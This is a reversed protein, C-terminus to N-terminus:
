TREASAELFDVLLRVGIGTAHKPHYRRAENLFATSAIDLHAWPLGEVFEQLFIAAVISGASRSGWNKIDANDSKLNDRYEKYLPLQWVREGSREGAAFLADALPQNNACLVSAEPGISIETAGTLTAIDILRTPKLHRIAYTIADALILRGEADSNTIEVTKGAYSRYIDGPKYSGPGIANETLPVVASINVPLKLAAVASLTALVAAGGAMDCRMSEMSGTPKLNLGGTDYTVGKGILATREQSSPNGNYEVVMLVPENASGRSVALLLGMQLEILEHRDLLRVKLSDFKDMLQLAAKAFQQPTIDDANGNVLDRAFHVAECIAAHKLAIPLMSPPMGVLFAQEITTQREATQQKFTAFTYNALMAGEVVGIVVDSPTLSAVTPLLFAVSKIKKGKSKAIASAYARRLSEVTLTEQPGLGLLGLRPATPTSGYTILMDGPSATFDGAAIPVEISTMESGFNAAKSVAGDATSYFPLILLDAAPMEAWQEIASFQMRVEAITFTCHITLLSQLYQTEVFGLIKL